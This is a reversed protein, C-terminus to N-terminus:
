SREYEKREKRSMDRASIVRILKKRITFVAFLRRGMDTQGLTFFRLERQSHKVDEAAILPLNFFIQECEAPTVQHKGWIKKINGEDWQFGSCAQLKELIDM